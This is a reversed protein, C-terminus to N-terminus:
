GVAGRKLGHFNGFPRDISASANLGVFVISTKLISVNEGIVDERTLDNEDWVAFSVYKGYKKKIKEFLQSNM